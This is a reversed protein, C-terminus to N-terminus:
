GYGKVGVILFLEFAGITANFLTEYSPVLRSRTAWLSCSVGYGCMVRMYIVSGYAVGSSDAFGHLQVKREACCLVPLRFSLERLMCM